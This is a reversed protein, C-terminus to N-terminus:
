RIQFNLPFLLSLFHPNLFPLTIQFFCCLFFCIQTLIRYSTQQKPKCKWRNQCLQDINKVVHDVTHIDPVDRLNTGIRQRTNADTHRDDHTNRCKRSQDTHSSRRPSRDHHSFSILLLSLFDHAVTCRHQTSDGHNQCNQKKNESPIDQQHKSGTLSRNGICPCIHLNVATSRNKHLQCKAQIRKDIRLSKRLNSHHRYCDTCDAVDNQIRNKNKAQM